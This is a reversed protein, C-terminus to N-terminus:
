DIAHGVVGDLDHGIGRELQCCVLQSGVDNRRAADVRDSPCGNQTAGTRQAAFTNVKAVGAAPRMAEYQVKIADAAANLERVFVINDKLSPRALGVM